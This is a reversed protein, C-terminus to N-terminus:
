EDERKVWMGVRGTNQAEYRPFDVVTFPEEREDGGGAYSQISLGLM